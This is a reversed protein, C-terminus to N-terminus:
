HKTVASPAYPKFRGSGAAEKAKEAAADKKGVEGKKPHVYPMLTKAAEVRLKTDSEIDNMMSRLFDMPDTFMKALDPLDLPKGAQEAEAKAKNVIEHRELAEQVDRDKMLRSAAQAAGSESYGAKVAAKAGKLGSRLADVFRRKKETLAM